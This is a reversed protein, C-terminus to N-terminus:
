ALQPTTTQIAARPITPPRDPRHRNSRHCALASREGSARSVERRESTAVRIWRFSSMTRTKRRAAGGARFPTALFVNSTPVAEIKGRWWWMIWEM